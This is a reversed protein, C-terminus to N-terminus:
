ELNLQNKHDFGYDEEMKRVIEASPEGEGSEIIVGYDEPYFTGSQQAEMFADLRDARVAVYAFVPDGDPNEGRVLLVCVVTENPDLDEEPMSDKIAQQVAKAEVANGETPLRVAPALYKELVSVDQISSLEWLVERAEPAPHTYLVQLIAKRDGMEGEKDSGARYMAKLISINALALSALFAYSSLTEDTEPDTYLGYVVEPIAPDDIQALYAMAEQRPYYGINKDELIGRLSDKAFLPFRNMRGLTLAAGQKAIPHASQNVHLIQQCVKEYQRLEPYLEPQPLDTWKQGRDALVAWQYIWDIPELVSLQELRTLSLTAWFVAHSDPHQRLVELLFPEYEAPIM